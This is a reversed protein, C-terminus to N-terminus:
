EKWHFLVPRDIDPHLSLHVPCGLAARELVGDPDASRPLPLWIQVTLRAIRRPPAATMEKTVEGHMGALDMAHRRAALDMTTLMCTLLSTGALDTPSFAEGRGHNDVPADTEIRTGSPGHVVECHLGGAYNATMRVM